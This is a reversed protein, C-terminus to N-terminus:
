QNHQCAKQYEEYLKGFDSPSFLLMFGPMGKEKLAVCPVKNEIGALERTEKYLKYVAIKDKVTIYSTLDSISVTSWNKYALEFDKIHVLLLVGRSTRERLLSVPLHGPKVQTHGAYAVRGFSDNYGHWRCPAIDKLKKCEFFIVPHLTDSRTKLSKMAGSMPVRDTGWTNAVVQELKKWADHGM